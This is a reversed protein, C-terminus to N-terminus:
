SKFDDGEIRTNSTLWAFGDYIWMLSLFILTAQWYATLGHPHAILGTIQTVAYVFVLDLFLEINSVKEIGADQPTLSSAASPPPLKM